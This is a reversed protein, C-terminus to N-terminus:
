YKDKENKLINKISQKEIENRSEISSSAIHETGYFNLLKILKGRYPENNFVDLYAFSKKNKKLFNYLDNENVFGGRSTNIFIVNKKCFGFFNKDVMSKYSSSFNANITVIDSIKLINQLKNIKQFKKIKVNPDYYFIKCGFFLLYNALLRGIKGMGIIGVNKKYLLNGPSFFKYSSNIKNFNLKKLIFFILGIIQEVVSIYLFKNKTIFLKIKNLKLYNTEINDIGVGIRSIGILNSANKLTVSNYNELGAIIYEPNNKNILNILQLDIKIDKRAKIVKYKKILIKKAFFLNKLNFNKLTILIKKKKM